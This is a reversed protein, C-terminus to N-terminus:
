KKEGTFEIWGTLIYKVGSLPPNGRHPHTWASPFICLDGKKPLVRISQYLFETEGGEEVNNLYVTYAGIRQSVAISTAESHWIHYGESPLTKQVKYSYITVPDIADLFKYKKTYNEHWIKWFTNHFEDLYLSITDRSYTQPALDKMLFASTDTQGITSLRRQTYSGVSTEEYYNILKDCFVDSFAKPYVEIFNPNSM